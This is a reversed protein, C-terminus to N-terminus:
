TSSSSKLFFNPDRQFRKEFRQYWRDFINTPVVMQQQQHSGVGTDFSQMFTYLDAAIKQAIFLRSTTAKNSDNVSSSIMNQISSKLEISIGFTVIVPPSASSALELTQEHESWGTHFVASPTESSITGLLEYGTSVQNPNTASAIQWYLIVGHDDPLITHYTHQQHPAPPLLFFIVERITALPVPIDGPCSLQITYKRGTPDIPIFDTRVPRGPIIIGFFPSSPPSSSSSGGIPQLPAQQQQQAALSYPQLPTTPPATTPYQTPMIMGQQQPMGPFSSYNM